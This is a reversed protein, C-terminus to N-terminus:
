DVKPRSDKASLLKKHGEMGNKAISEMIRMTWAYSAGTHGNYKIYRDLRVLEVDTSFMFGDKGPTSPKKMYDWLDAKTIAQYADALMIAEEPSYGIDTFTDM